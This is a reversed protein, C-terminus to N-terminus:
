TSDDQVLEAVELNVSELHSQILTQMEKWVQKMRCTEVWSCEPHPRLCESIAMPGELAEVVNLVTIERLPRTLRVGGDQGRRSALFGARVLDQVVKALFQRPIAQAQGIEEVSCFKGASRHGAYHLALIGYCVKRTLRM